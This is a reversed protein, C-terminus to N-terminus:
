PFVLKGDKWIKVVKDINTEEWDVRYRWTRGVMREVSLVHFLVAIFANRIWMGVTSVRTRNKKQQRGGEIIGEVRKRRLREFQM